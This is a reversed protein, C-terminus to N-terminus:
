QIICESNLINTLIQSNEIPYKKNLISKTTVQQILRIEALFTHKEAINIPVSLKYTCVMHSLM